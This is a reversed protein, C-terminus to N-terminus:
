QILGLRREHQRAREAREPEGRLRSLESFPRAFPGGQRRVRDAMVAWRAEDEDDREADRQRRGDRLGALRGWFDGCDYIARERPTAALYDFEIVPVDPVALGTM